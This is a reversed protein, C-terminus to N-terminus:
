AVLDGVEPNYGITTRHLLREHGEYGGTAKHLVCRNDWMVLMQPDWHHRYRFEERTQWEYLELLVATAADEDLGDVGIIYGFTGYLTAAGTERHRGILPHSESAYAEESVVIKM